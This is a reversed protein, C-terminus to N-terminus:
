FKLLFDENVNDLNSAPDLVKIKNEL